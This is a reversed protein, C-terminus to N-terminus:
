LSFREFSNRMDFNKCTTIRVFSCNVFSILTKRKEAERCDITDISVQARSPLLTSTIILPIGPSLESDRSTLRYRTWPSSATFSLRTLYNVSMKGERRHHHHHKSSLRARIFTERQTSRNWAESDQNQTTKVPRRSKATSLHSM